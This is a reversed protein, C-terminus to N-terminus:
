KWTRRIQHAETTFVVNGLSLTEKPAFLLYLYKLTEAFFFSEMKDSKEKTTVDNLIAYAEDTRCYKVISNFFTEGMQLYQKYGSWAHLFEAKVMDATVEHQQSIAPICLAANLMAAFVLQSISQRM